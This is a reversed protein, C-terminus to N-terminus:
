DDIELETELCFNEFISKLQKLRDQLAWLAKRSKDQLPEETMEAAHHAKFADRRKQYLDRAKLFDGLAKFAEEEPRLGPISKLGEELENEATKLKKAAARRAVKANLAAQEAELYIAHDKFADELCARARQKFKETKAEREKESLSNLEHLDQAEKADKVAIFQSLIKLKDQEDKNM